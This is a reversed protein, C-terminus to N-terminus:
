DFPNDRAPELGLALRMDNRGMLACELLAKRDNTTRSVLKQMDSPYVVAIRAVDPSSGGNQILDMTRNFGVDEGLLVQRMAESYGSLYPRELLRMLVHPRRRRFSPERTLIVITDTCGLELARVLPVGEVVGGDIYGRERIKVVKNYLIPLAATARLAEMLDVDIDKNTVPYAKGTVFDTLVVTLLSRSDRVRQVDLTKKSTLIEILFDIDVIRRIRTLDVFNRNSIDDLYVSVAVRAQGALFYAANIAGASSGVVHNFSDTYGAEELGFLAAMSYIGRMGGGQVVLGSIVDQPQEGHVWHRILTSKAISSADTPQKQQLDTM